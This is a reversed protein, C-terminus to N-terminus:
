AEDDYWREIDVPLVLFDCNTWRCIDVPDPGYQVYWATDRPRDALWAPMETEGNLRAQVGEELMEQNWAEHTTAWETRREVLYGLAKIRDDLERRYLASVEVVLDGPEPTTIRKRIREVIPAPHGVMTAQNLHKAMRILADRHAIAREDLSLLDDGTRDTGRVDEHPQKM